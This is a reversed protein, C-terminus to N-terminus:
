RSPTVLDLENVDVTAIRVDVIVAAAAAVAVTFTSLYPQYLSELTTFGRTVVNSFDKSGITTDELGSGVSKLSTVRSEETALGDIAGPALSTFDFHM